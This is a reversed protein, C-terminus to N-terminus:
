IPKGLGVPHPFNSPEGQAQQKMGLPLFYLHPGTLTGKPPVRLPGRGEAGWAQQMPERATPGERPSKRAGLYLALPSTAGPLHPQTIVWSPPGQQAPWPYVSLRM